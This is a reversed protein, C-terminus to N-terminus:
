EEAPHRDAGDGHGEEGHADLGHREAAVVVARDASCRFRLRYEFGRESGMPSVAPEPAGSGATVVAAEAKAM